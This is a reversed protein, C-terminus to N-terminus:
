RERPRLTQAEEGRCRELIELFREMFGLKKLWRNLYNRDLSDIRMLLCIDGMDKSRNLFVKTVVVDEPTCLWLGAGAIKARKRRRHREEEYAALLREEGSDGRPPTNAEHNALAAERHPAANLSLFFDIAFLTDEIRMQYFGEGRKRFDWGGEKLEELAPLLGDEPAYIVLDVDFTTRRAQDGLWYNGAFMGSILYPVRHRDLAGAVVRAVDSLDRPKM